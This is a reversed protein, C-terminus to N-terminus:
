VVAVAMAPKPFLSFASSIRCMPFKFRGTCSLSLRYLLTYPFSFLVSSHFLLSSVASLPVADTSFSSAPRDASPASREPQIHSMKEGECSSLSFSFSPCPNLVSMGWGSFAPIMPSLAFAVFLLLQLFPLLLAPAHHAVQGREPVVRVHFRIRCSCRVVVAQCRCFRGSLFVSLRCCAPIREETVALLRSFVESPM